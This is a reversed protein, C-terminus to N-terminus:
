KVEVVVKVERITLGAFVGLGAGIALGIKSSTLAAIHSLLLVNILLNRIRPQTIDSKWEHTKLRISSSDPHYCFCSAALLGLAMGKLPTGPMPTMRELAWGCGYLVAPGCVVSTVQHSTPLNM